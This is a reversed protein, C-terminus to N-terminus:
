VCDTLMKQVGCIIICMTVILKQYFFLLCLVSAEKMALDSGVSKKNHLLTFFLTNLIVQLVSCLM